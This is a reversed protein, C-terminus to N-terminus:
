LNESYSGVIIGSDNDLVESATCTPALLISVAMRKARDINGAYGIVQKGEEPWGTASVTYRRTDSSLVQPGNKKNLTRAMDEVVLGCMVLTMDDHPYFVAVEDGNFLLAAYPVEVNDATLFDYPM